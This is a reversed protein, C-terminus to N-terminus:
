PHLVACAGRDPEFLMSDRGAVPIALVETVVPAGSPNLKHTM